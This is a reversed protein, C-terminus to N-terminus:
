RLSEQGSRIYVDNLKCLGMEKVKDQGESLAYRIFELKLSEAPKGLTGILLERCLGDPYFGLWVSRHASELNRFPVEKKDIKNDFDLDFPIVQINERREGTAADFAFSFNCFGIGLQNQQINKIMEEDGTVKIGKFDSASKYLFRAFVDAAGSEDARSYATIKENGTTDLVEAWRLPTPNTFIKQMEDTSLGQRLIKKLYPNKANVIPAIGDKAVAVTWIGSNIEDPTLPRSIMAIDIKKDLLESIGLGTGLEHIEINVGPHLTKFDAAWKQMLPAIAYAGGVSLNGSLEVAVPASKIDAQKNSKGNNCGTLLVLCITVPIFNKFGM